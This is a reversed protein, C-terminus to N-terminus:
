PVNFEQSCGGNRNKTEGSPCMTTLTEFRVIFRTILIEGETTQNIPTQNLTVTEVSSITTAQGKTTKEISSARYATTIPKSTEEIFTTSNIINSKSTENTIKASMGTTTNTPSMALTSKATADTTSKEEAKVHSIPFSTDSLPQANFKSSMSQNDAVPTQLVYKADALFVVFVIAIVVSIVFNFQVNM